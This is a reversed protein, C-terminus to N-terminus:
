RCSQLVKELEKMQKAVARDGAHKEAWAPDSDTLAVTFKDMLALLADQYAASDDINQQSAPVSKTAGNRLRADFFVKGTLPEEVRVQMFAGYILSRGAANSAYDVRKLEDLRLHIAYDAEPISLTYVTGDAFRAAMRNGIAHGKSPPLVPIRQNVSLFKSFDQALAAEGVGPAAGSLAPMAARAGDAITADVVRVRREITPNLQTHALTASFAAFINAKGDGLYLNRVAQAIQESTPPADLIDIAQVVIPFTAVVAMERFDVFLAQASLETVLKHKSGIQEVSTSERDLAFALVTASGDGAKLSALSGFHLSFSPNALGQLHRRLADDLVSVDGVRDAEIRHTNPYSASTSADDGVYAFGAFNVPTVDAALADLPSLLLASLVGAILTDWGSQRRGTCDTGCVWGFM